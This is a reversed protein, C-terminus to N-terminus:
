TQITALEVVCLAGSYTSTGPYAFVNTWANLMPMLYCAHRLCSLEPRDAGEGSRAM